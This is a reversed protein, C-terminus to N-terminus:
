TPALTALANDAPHGRVRVCIGPAVGHDPCNAAPQQAKAFVLRRGRKGGPLKKLKQLAERLRESLLAVEEASATANKDPEAVVKALDEDRKNNHITKLLNIILWFVLLAGISILRALESDFPHFQGLALLPGFFWILVALILVGFLTKGWHSRFFKFIPGFM